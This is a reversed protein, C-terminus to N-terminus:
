SECGRKWQPGMQAMHGDRIRRRARWEARRLRMAEEEAAIQAQTSRVLINAALARSGKSVPWPRSSERTTATAPGRKLRARRQTPSSSASRTSRPPHGFSGPEKTSRQFMDCLERRAAHHHLNGKSEQTASRLEEMTKWQMLMHVLM